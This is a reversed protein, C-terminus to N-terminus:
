ATTADVLARRPSAAAQRTPYGLRFGFTPRWASDPLLATIRAAMAPPRGLQHERDIMEPIQNLPQMGLGLLTGQLHLRQWLRGAALSRVRDYPDRVLLMGFAAATPIVHKRTMDLWYKGESRADVPPLLAGITETLRDLGAGALTLGSRERDVQARVAHGATVGRM